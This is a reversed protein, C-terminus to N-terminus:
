HARRKQIAVGGSMAVLRLRLGQGQRVGRQSEHSRLRFEPHESAHRRDRQPQRPHMCRAQALMPRRRFTELLQPCTLVADAPVRKPLLVRMFGSGTGYPWTDTHLHQRYGDRRVSDSFPLGSAREPGCRALDINRRWPLKRDYKALELPGCKATRRRARTPDRLGMCFALCAIATTSARSANETNRHSDSISAVMCACMPPSAIVPALIVACPIRAVAAIVREPDRSGSSSACDGRRDAHGCNSDAVYRFCIRTWETWANASEQGEHGVGLRLLAHENHCGPGEQVDRIALRKM